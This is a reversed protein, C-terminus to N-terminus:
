RISRSGCFADGTAATRTGERRVDLVGGNTNCGAIVKRGGGDYGSHTSPATRTAKCRSPSSDSRSRVSIQQLRVSIQQLRVSIQQLRASIQQLRVRVHRKRGAILQFRAIIL